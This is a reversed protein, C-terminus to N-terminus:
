IVCLLVEILFTVIAFILFLRKLDISKLKEPNKIVIINEPKEEFQGIDPLPISNVELYIRESNKLYYIGKSLPRIVFKGGEYDSIKEDSDTYLSYIGEKLDIEYFSSEPVLIKESIFSKIVEYLLMVFEPYYVLNTNDKSPYFSAICLNESIAFLNYPFSKIRLNKNGSIIFLKKFYLDSDYSKVDKMVGRKDIGRKKLLIELEDNITDPFVIIKEGQSLLDEIEKSNMSGEVIYVRKGGKKLTNIFASLFKNEKGMAIIDAGRDEEVYFFRENDNPYDDKLNIRVFLFKLDPNYSFNFINNGGKIDIDKRLILNKGYYVELPISNTDFNSSIDIFIRDGFKKIDRIKLDKVREKGVIYIRKDKIGYIKKLFTDPVPALIYVDKIGSNSVLSDFKSSPIKEVDFMKVRRKWYPHEFYLIHNFFGFKSKIKPKSFSLIVFLITLIRMLLTILDRIRRKKKIEKEKKFLDIWPYFIKRKRYPLLLHIIIPVLSLPLFFLFFPNLFIM